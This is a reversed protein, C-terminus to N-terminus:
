KCLEIVNRAIYLIDKKKLWWGCPISFQKKSFFDLGFLDDKQFERFATYTNNPIHILGCKINMENLKKVIEDRKNVLITYAWYTPESGDYIKIPTINKYKSFLKDYLKANNIHANIIKELYDMQSLGIAASINNMNYKFGSETIDIDWQQGKWDGETTKVFDRDLGFWKLRKARDYYNKNNTIFIGGDGTTIHKIAQLSYCTFDVYHHIFKSEHKAYFAHAADFIIPINYKEKIYLMKKMNPLCGAWCVVIIAKTNCTIKKEVDDFDMMGTDKEIDSWIINAGLSVIPSNTAVCTMPTTIVEDGKKIGLL